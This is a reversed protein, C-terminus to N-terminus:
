SFCSDGGGSAVFESEDMAFTEKLSAGGKALDQKVALSSKEFHKAVNAKRKIWNLNNASLSDDLFTFVRHNLRSVEVGVILDKEQALKVVKLGLDLAIRNSFKELVLQREMM